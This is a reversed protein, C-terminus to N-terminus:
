FKKASSRLSTLGANIAEQKTAFYPGSQLYYYMAAASSGGTKTQFEYRNVFGQPTQAVEVLAYERSSNTKPTVIIQEINANNEVEAMEISSNRLNDFKPDSPYADGTDSKKPKPTTPIEQMSEIVKQEQIPTAAPQTTKVDKTGLFDGQLMTTFYGEKKAEDIPSRDIKYNVTNIANKRGDHGVPEGKLINVIAKDLARIKDEDARELDQKETLGLFDAMADEHKFFLRTRASRSQPADALEARSQARKM